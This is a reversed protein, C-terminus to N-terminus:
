QVHVLFKTGRVGVTAKPTRFKIEDPALTGLKGSQYVASGQKMYVEFAYAEELPTYVFQSLTMESAAGLAIRTGDLFIFGVSAPKSTRIVDGALLHQGLTPVLSQGDRVIDVQGRLEKITAVHAQAWASATVCLCLLMTSLVIRM